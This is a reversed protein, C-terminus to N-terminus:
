NKSLSKMLTDMQKKLQDIQEQQSSLKDQLKIVISQQQALLRKQQEIVASKEQINKDSSITYLTLEEVKELLKVQNDGLNLGDAQMQKASPIEPLHHNKNIYKEVVSLSNLHYDPEFVFDAGTTNVVVGNARATGAIDLIYLTAGTSTQSNKGILINGMWNIRMRETLTGDATSNRTSFALDGKTNGSGDYILSKIAAFAGQYAGFVITGGNNPGSGADQVYLAGGLGPSTSLAATTQNTGFVHLSSLPNTTGIGVNGSPTLALTTSAGNNTTFLMNTLSSRFVVDGTQAGPAWYGYGGAVALTFMTQNNLQFTELPWTVSNLTLLSVPTTTGIGVSNPTYTVTNASNTTWQAYTFQCVALVAILSLYVKKM